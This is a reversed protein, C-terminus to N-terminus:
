KVVEWGASVVKDNELVKSVIDEMNHRRTKGMACFEAVVEVKDGVVDGSKLNSMFLSKCQNSNIILGRIELEADELCTVCIRYVEENDEGQGIPKIHRALPRLIVNSGILILTASIALLPNSTSSLLGIAATCWLTAATNIGRVVGSDKFIVGSCLFGVGTIISSGIRFVQDSGLMTPFLTFFCTGLCILVNIRIGALHGTLQRELGIAFGLIMALIIRSIFMELDMKNGRTVRSYNYSLLMLISIALVKRKEQSFTMIACFFLRTM